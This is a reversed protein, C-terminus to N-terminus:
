VSSGGSCRLLDLVLNLFSKIAKKRAEAERAARAELAAATAAAVTGAGVGVEAAAEGAAIAAEESGAPVAVAPAAAAAAGQRRRWLRRRVTDGFRASSRGGARKYELHRALPPSPLSLLLPASALALLPLLRYAAVALPSRYSCPRPICCSGGWGCQM